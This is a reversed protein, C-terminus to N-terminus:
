KKPILKRPLLVQRGRAIGMQGEPVSKTIVSGAGVLANDGIEVPAVLSTNSGIFAGKGIVTRYKNVGDYNCTITGAGVNCAEGVDADGIYTLHNVKAGKRLVSKKVEVFNGVHVWEELIAGPRLRAYPGVIAGAGVQATDLYSYSKIHAGGAVSSNELKCHSDVRAGDGIVTQGYLECPGTLETGKGIQVRPGIRVTQPSRVFVGSALHGEVIAARVSEEAAVLEQPTNVGNLRADNGCVVGRVVLGQEVAHGVLDTIYLEGSKNNTNLRSLLPGIAALSVWYIGANVETPEQGHIEPWFDKAEVIARVQGRERLVRGFSGPNDLELTMFALDAPTQGGRGACSACFQELTDPATQPTDGNVVLVHSLGAEVLHPWAVVLAHGTGLQQEQLIMKEAYESFAKRVSEAGHGIITWVAKGFAAELAAYVYYLVPEDLVRLLVKPTDSYMRTGKGGALVLAGTTPTM